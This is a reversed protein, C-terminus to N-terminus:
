SRRRLPVIDAGPEAIPGKEVERGEILAEIAIWKFVPKGPRTKGRSPARFYHEGEVLVRRHMMARVASVSFPTLKPFDEIVAVAGSRTEM